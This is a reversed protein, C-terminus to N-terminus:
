SFVAVLNGRSARGFPTEYIDFALAVGVGIVIAGVTVARALPSPLRRLFGFALLHAVVFALAASVVAHLVFVLLILPVPGTGGELVAVAAVVGSFLLHRVGPVWGDGILFIPLPAIAFLALFLLARISRPNPENTSPRM